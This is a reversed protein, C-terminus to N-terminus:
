CPSSGPQAPLGGCWCVKYHCIQLVRHKPHEKSLHCTKRLFPSCVNELPQKHIREARRNKFEKTHRQHPNDTNTFQGELKRDRQMDKSENERNRQGGEEQPAPLPFNPLSVVIYFLYLYNFFYINFFILKM